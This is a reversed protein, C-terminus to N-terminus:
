KRKLFAKYLAKVGAIDDATPKEINGIVPQMIAPVGLRNEHALGLGHGLEHVAVRRFDYITRKLRGHYVNFPKNSNFVTGAHTFRKGTFSYMTVALTTSGFAQGCMSTAFAAGNPAHVNCPDSSREVPVYIFPTVATWDAMAQKLAATYPNGPAGPVIYSFNTKGNPWSPGELSYAHACGGGVIVATLAVCPAVFISRGRGLRGVNV